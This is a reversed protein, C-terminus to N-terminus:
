GKLRASFKEKLVKLIKERIERIEESTLNKQYSQYMIHFTRTDHYKDLLSVSTILTSQKQITEIIEGTSIDENALLALDEIIPPFKSLPKYTKKLTAYKILDTFDLEVNVLDDDLIEIQGIMNKGVSIEAGGMDERLPRFSLTTIGLISALQEIVGKLEYFSANPKKIVASFHLREDPLNKQRKLYVNAIEFITINEQNKNERVIKLLSPVLTRRMYSYEESLPNQLTLAENLPGEFLVDSVMPYTYVETYGWYKMADKIMNEWFFENSELTVLTMPTQQPLTNPINYYGYVRAIEEILDEPLSIDHARFSPPTATLKDKHIKVDFGLLTLINVSTKLPIKLGILNNIKEESVTIEQQKIPRPYIDIISSVIKGQALEEYLRIGYLLADMALNPDVSKENLVVAESRIGLSMSTKRMRRPDNNDIFFLIRKTNDTVVSNELGMVGLLDVIRGREDEAVIDGGLLIHKKGDLTTVQENKKAERIRLEQSNLRDYDFVHTPHGIVRMVYNTIDIINNLSRIGSTELREQIYKPSTDIRVEMVVACIRNVLNEDVIIKISHTNNETEKPKELQPPIFKADIHNQTLIASAERALGTLSMLDVRNTTVEIDMIYDDQYKELREVSVSSLSLLEVLEKQTANTKVFDRIWSNLIKINM